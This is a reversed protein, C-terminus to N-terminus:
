KSRARLRTCEIVGTLIRLRRRVATMPPRASGAARRTEQVADLDEGVAGAAPVRAGAAPARHQAIAATFALQVPALPRRGVVAHLESGRDARELGQMPAALYREVRVRLVHAVADGGPHRVPLPAVPARGVALRHLVLVEPLPEIPEGRGVVDFPM